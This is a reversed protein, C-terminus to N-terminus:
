LIIAALLSIQQGCFNCASCFRETGMKLDFIKKLNFFLLLFSILIAISASFQPTFGLFMFTLLTIFPIFFFIFTYLVDKKKPTEEMSLPKLNYISAYFNIGVWVTFFFLLAPFFSAIIIKEYPIGTLEVMVFAGAGMLPPM